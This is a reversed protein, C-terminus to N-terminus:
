ARDRQPAGALTDDPPDNSLPISCCPGRSREYSLQISCRIGTGLTPPEFGESRAKRWLSKCPRHPTQTGRDMARSTRTPMDGRAHDPGQGARRHMGCGVPQFFRENPRERRRWGRHRAQRNQKEAADAGEVTLLEAEEDGGVGGATQNAAAFHPQVALADSVDGTDFEPGRRRLEFSRRTESGRAARSIACDENPLIRANSNLGARRQDRLLDNVDLAPCERGGCDGFPSVSCALACFSMSLMDDSAARAARSSGAIMDFTLSSPVWSSAVCSASPAWRRRRRALHVDHTRAGRPHHRSQGTRVPRKTRHEARTLDTIARASRARACNSEIRVSSADFSCESPRNRRSEVIM